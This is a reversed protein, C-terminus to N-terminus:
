YKDSMIKRRKLKFGINQRDQESISEVPGSQEINNIKIYTESNESCTRLENGNNVTESNFASFLIDEALIWAYWYPTRGQLQHM